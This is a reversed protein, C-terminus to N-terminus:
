RGRHRMDERMCELAERAHIAVDANDSDALHDLDPWLLTLGEDAISQIAEHVQIPDQARLATRFWRLARCEGLRALAARASQRVERYPDRCAAQLRASVANPDWPEWWGLSALATARCSQHCDGAARLLFEETERSPHGRLARLVSLYPISTPPTLRRLPMLFRRRTRSEVHVHELAWERLWPGVRPDRSWGLAEVAPEAHSFDPKALLELVAAGCEARLDILAALIEKQEAPDATPLTKSLQARAEQLYEKLAPELTALHSFQWALAERDYSKGLSIKSTAPGTSCACPTPLSACLELTSPM